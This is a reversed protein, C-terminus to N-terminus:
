SADGNAHRVRYHRQRCANCCFRADRRTPKFERRCSECRPPPHGKWDIVSGRGERRRKRYVRQCCRNSCVSWLRFCRANIATLIPEGCGGCQRVARELKTVDEDDACKFCDMCVSAVGPCRVWGLRTFIPFRMRGPAFAERCWHCHDPTADYDNLPEGNNRSQSLKGSFYRRDTVPKVQGDQTPSFKKSKDLM